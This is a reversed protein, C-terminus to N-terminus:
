RVKTIPKSGVEVEVVKTCDVNNEVLKYVERKVMDFTFQMDYYEINHSSNQPNPISKAIKKQKARSVDNCIALYIKMYDDTSCESIFKYAGDKFIPRNWYDMDVVDAPLGYDWNARWNAITHTAFQERTENMVWGDSLRSMMKAWDLFPKVPKRAEKAKDRDVVQQEIVVPTIPEYKYGGAVSGATYKLILGKEEDIPYVRDEAGNSGAVKVWV